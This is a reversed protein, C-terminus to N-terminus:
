SPSLTSVQQPTTTPTFLLHSYGVDDGVTVAVACRRGYVWCLANEDVSNYVAAMTYTTGGMNQDCLSVATAPICSGAKWVLDTLEHIAMLFM